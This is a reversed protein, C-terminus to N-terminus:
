TSPHPFDQEWWYEIGPGDMGYNTSIGVANYRNVQVYIHCKTCVVSVFISGEGNM